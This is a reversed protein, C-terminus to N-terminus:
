FDEFFPTIDAINEPQLLTSNSLAYIYVNADEWDYEVFVQAAQVENNLTRM